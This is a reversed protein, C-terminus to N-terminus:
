AVLFWAGKNNSPTLYYNEYCYFNDDEFKNGLIILLWDILAFVIYISSM